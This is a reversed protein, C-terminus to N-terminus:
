LEEGALKLAERAQNIVSAAKNLDAIKREMSTKDKRKNKFAWETINQLSSLADELAAVLADHSNYALMIRKECRPLVYADPGFELMRGVAIFNGIECRKVRGLIQLPLHDIRYNYQEVTESM